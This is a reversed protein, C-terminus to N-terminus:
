RFSGKLGLWFASVAATLALVILATLSASRVSNYTRIFERIANLDKQFEVVQNADEINIGLQLFTNAVATDAAARAIQEAEQRHM